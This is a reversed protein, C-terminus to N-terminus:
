SRDLVVGAVNSMPILIPNDPRDPVTVSLFFGDEALQGYIVTEQVSSISVPHCLSVHGTGLRRSIGWGWPRLFSSRAARGYM